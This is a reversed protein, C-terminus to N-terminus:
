DIVLEPILVIIQLEFGTKTQQTEQTATMVSATVMRMAPKVVKRYGEM